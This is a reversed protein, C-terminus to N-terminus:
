KCNGAPVNVQHPPIKRVVDCTKSAVLPILGQKEAQQVSVDSEIHCPPFVGKTANFKDDCRWGVVVVVPAQLAVFVHRPLPAV